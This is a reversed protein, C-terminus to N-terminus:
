ALGLRRLGTRGLFKIMMILATSNESKVLSKSSQEAVIGVLRVVANKDYLVVSGEALGARKRAVLAISLQKSKAKM